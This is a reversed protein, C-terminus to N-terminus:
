RVSKLLTKLVPGSTSGTHDSTWQDSRNLRNSRIYSGAPTKFNIPHFEFFFTLIRNLGKIVRNLRGTKRDSRRNVPEVGTRHLEPGIYQVPGTLGGTGPGVPGVPRDSGTKLVSNKM